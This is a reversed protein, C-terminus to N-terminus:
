FREIEDEKRWMKHTRVSLNDRNTVILFIGTRQSFKKETKQHCKLSATSDVNVSEMESSVV